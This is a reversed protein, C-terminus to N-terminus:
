ARHRACFADVLTVDADVFEIGARYQAGTARPIEFNAWAIAANFRVVGADDTLAMRVRQNPKLITPSVVQAGYTSLDILMAPNGDVLVDVKGAIKIRAARRTGQQDLKPPHTTATSAAPEVPEPAPTDHAAPSPAAAAAPEPAGTGRPVVRSYDSDHSLVRIETQALSVVAKIRNIMAAGRPTAAFQRELVVLGPRRKAITDLARLAEGDTFM